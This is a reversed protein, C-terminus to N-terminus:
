QITFIVGTQDHSVCFCTRSFRFSSMSLNRLILILAGWFCQYFSVKMKHTHAGFYDSRLPGKLTSLYRCMGTVHQGVRRAPVERGGPVRVRDPAAPQAGGRLV